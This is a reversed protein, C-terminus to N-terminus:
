RRPVAHRDRDGGHPQAPRQPRDFNKRAQEQAGFQRDPARREDVAARGELNRAGRGHIPIGRQDVATGRERRAAGPRCIRTREPKEHLAEKSAKLEAHLRRTEDPRTGIAEIEEPEPEVIGGDLFFIIAQPPGDTGPQVPSISMAILRQEGDFAVPVPMTLTPLKQELARDIAYGLDLRLESRVVSSLRPSFAGGSHLIFKGASPSLHLIHHGQDVLISPPATRRWPTLTCRAPASTTKARREGTEIGRGLAGLIGQRFHQSIIPLTRTAKPRSCYLRADRNVPEFLEPASDATEASGLFLYRQPRLGYYFVSCLKEQLSRELYILLNRCSILDLRLFPPDKLVSHSAFLVMERLEQRVRYHSGEAVFFRSLREDSVDAEIASPYLGERATALAGQDLDTAFIQIPITVKRQEAAEAILMALSYAEEGTACGPVWCRLGEDELDDFLPGIAEDALIQFAHPDRFFQTVSILMDRFLESAEELNEQLFKAYDGLTLMRRVQMRRLVRRMVTARKYSSFDHGTRAHLFNVIRRLDNAAGVEDLSRVAEKSRAVEIIREAMGAIPAVFDALGTSIASHPMSPFEADAPDQVFIVGGAEKIAAVGLSGDSGAGTLVVALGDGRGEAVSRFLMDIPARQGRPQTFPRAHVNDGEIVLERDPAIVYVCNPKLKPTDQVQHVPMRTVSELIETMASPQDPALHLIVVYALGLDDPIDRFLAQLAKVGGASAGIGCIPTFSQNSVQQM